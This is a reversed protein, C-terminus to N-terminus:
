GVTRAAIVNISEGQWDAILVDGTVVPLKINLKYIDNLLAPIKARPCPSATKVPLRKIASDKTIIPATATVTRKPDNIEEIAYVSGRPCKNGTVTLNGQAGTKEAELACGIPCVICTLKIM